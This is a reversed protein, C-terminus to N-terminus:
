HKVSYLPHPFLDTKLNFILCYDQLLLVTSIASSRKEMIKKFICTICLQLKGAWGSRGEGAIKLSAGEGWAVASQTRPSFKEHGWSFEVAGLCASLVYLPLFLHPSLFPKKCSSASHILSVSTDGKYFDDHQMCQPLCRSFCICRHQIVHSHAHM